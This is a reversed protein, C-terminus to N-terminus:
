LALLWLVVCRQDARDDVRVDPNGAQKRRAASGRLNHIKDKGSPNNRHDGRGDEIFALIHEQPGLKAKGRSIDACDKGIQLQGSLMNDVHIRSSRITHTRIRIIINKQRHGNGAIGVVKNRAVYLM